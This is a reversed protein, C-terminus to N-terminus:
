ALGNIVYELIANPKKPYRFTHTIIKPQKLISRQVLEELLPLYHGSTKGTLLYNFHNKNRKYINIVERLGKLYVYDKTFGGGRYVRLTITFAKEHSINHNDILYLFTESFDYHNVMHHVAIVRLAVEQLREVDLYGSLFESMLALGEQTTTNGPLGTQLVKLPQFQANFTTVAHVGVEHHSLGLAFRKTFQADKKIKIKKQAPSFSAQAAMNKVLQIKYDLQYRQCENQFYKAVENADVIELHSDNHPIELCHMLYSANLTDKEGPEGYHKLSNYLFMKTGRASILDLQSVYEEIVDRYLNRIDIDKIAEINVQYLQKKLEKTSVNLFPYTFHPNYRFHSKFFKRKEAEANTPNIFDLLDIKKYINNITEDVTVVATDLSSSLLQHKKTM